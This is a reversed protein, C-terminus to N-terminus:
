ICIKKLLAINDDSINKLIHSYKSSNKFLHSIFQRFNFETLSPYFEYNKFLQILKKYSNQQNNISCYKPFDIQTSYNKNKKSLNYYYSIYKPGLIYLYNLFVFNLYKQSYTEFEINDLLTKHWDYLNNELFDIKSNKLAINFINQYFTYYILTTQENDTNSSHIPKYNHILSNFDTFLDCKIDKTHIDSININNNDFHFYHILIYLKKIDGQCKKIIIKLNIESLNYKFQKIYKNGIHLLTTDSPNYMKIIDIKKKPYNHSKNFTGIFIIPRITNNSTFISHLENVDSKSFSHLNINDIIYAFQTNENKLMSYVDFTKFSQKIKDYIHNKSKINMIDFHLVNYKKNELYLTALTTKGIGSPGELLIMFKKNINEFWKDLSSIYKNSGYLDKLQTCFTM